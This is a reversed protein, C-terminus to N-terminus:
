LRPQPDAGMKHPEPDLDPTYFHIHIRTLHLRKIKHLMFVFLEVCMEEYLNSREENM